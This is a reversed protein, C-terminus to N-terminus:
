NSEGNLCCVSVWNSVNNYQLSVLARTDADLDCSTSPDLPNVDTDAFFNLGDSCLSIWGSSTQETAMTITQNNNCIASINTNNQVLCKSNFTGYMIFWMNSDNVFWPSSPYGSVNLADLDSINSSNYISFNSAFTIFSFMLFTNNNQSPLAIGVNQCGSIILLIGLMCFIFLYNIRKM